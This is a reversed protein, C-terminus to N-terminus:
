DYIQHQRKISLNWTCCRQQDLDARRPSVWTMPKEETFLADLEAEEVSKANAEETISASHVALAQPVELSDKIGRTAVADAAERSQEATVCSAAVV